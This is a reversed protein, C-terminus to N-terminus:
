VILLFDVLWIIFEAFDIIQNIHLHWVIEISYNNKQFM